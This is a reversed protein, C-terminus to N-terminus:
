SNTGKKLEEMNTNHTKKREVALSRKGEHETHQFASFSEAGLRRPHSYVIIIFFFPLTQFYEAYKEQRVGLDRYSSIGSFYHCLNKYFADNSNVNFYEM